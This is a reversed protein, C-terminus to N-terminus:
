SFLIQFQIVNLINKLFLAIKALFEVGIIRLFPGSLFIKEVWLEKGDLISLFSSTMRTKLAFLFGCLKVSILHTSYM